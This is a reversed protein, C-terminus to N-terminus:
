VSGSRRSTVPMSNSEGDFLAGAGLAPAQIVAFALDVKAAQRVEYFKVQEATAAAHAHRSAPRVAGKIKEYAAFLLRRTAGTQGACNRRGSGGTEMGSAAGSGSM